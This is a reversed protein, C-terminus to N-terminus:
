RSVGHSEYTRHTLSSTAHKVKIGLQRFVEAVVCGPYGATGLYQGESWDWDQIELLANILKIERDAM